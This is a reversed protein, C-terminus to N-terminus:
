SFLPHLNGLKADFVEHGEDIQVTLGFKRQALLPAFFDRAAGGLAAGAAQHTAASRGAAMRLQVYVFGHDGSGDSVASHAAPYAFVRIGGTPFVQKGSEDRVSILADAVTRCFRSMGAQAELNASYLVVVHPM